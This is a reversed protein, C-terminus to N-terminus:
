EEPDDEDFFEETIEAEKEGASETLQESLPTFANDKGQTNEPDNSGSGDDAATDKEGAVGSSLPVYTRSAGDADDELDDSFDDYDDDDCDEESAAADKKQFYYYAAAAASGVAVTFLLFKGFKKAM